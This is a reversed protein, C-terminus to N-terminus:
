LVYCCEMIRCCGWLVGGMVYNSWLSASGGRVAEICEVTEQVIKSGEKREEQSLRYAVKSRRCRWRVVHTHRLARLLGGRYGDAEHSQVGRCLQQSRRGRPRM